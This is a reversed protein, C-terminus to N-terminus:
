SGVELLAAWTAPGVRKDVELGNAAQFQEVAAETAPGFSGDLALEAGELHGNLLIQLPKVAETKLGRHLVPLKVTTTKITVSGDYDRDLYPEPDIWAGDVQIGWHLHAGTVNGTAGMYGIVEGAKVTDGIRLPSRERLHYYVMAVNPATQIKVMYGGSKDYGSVTVTGGTHATIKDTEGGSIGKAVLDIGKHMRTVGNLTRMGFRSTIIYTDHNPFFRNSM